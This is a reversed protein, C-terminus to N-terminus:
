PAILLLGKPHGPVSKVSPASPLPSTKRTAPVESLRAVLEAVEQGLIACRDPGCDAKPEAEFSLLCITSKLYYPFRMVRPILLCSM